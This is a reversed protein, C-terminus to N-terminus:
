RCRRRKTSGCGTASGSSTRRCSRSWGPTAASCRTGTWKAEITYYGVLEPRFSPLSGLLPGQDTRPEVLVTRQDPLYCTLEDATRVFERGRAM